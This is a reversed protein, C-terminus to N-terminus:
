ACPAAPPLPCRAETPLTPSGCRAPAAPRCRRWSRPSPRAAMRPRAASGASAAGAARCAPPGSRRAQRGPPCACTASGACAEKRERGPCQRAIGQRAASRCAPRPSGASPRPLARSPPAAGSSPRRRGPPLGDPAAAPGAHMRVGCVARKGRRGDELKHGAPLAFGTKEPAARRFNVETADQRIPVPGGAARIRLASAASHGLPIGDGSATGGSLFRRGGRRGAPGPGCGAAETEVRSRAM